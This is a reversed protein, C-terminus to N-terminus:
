GRWEEPEIYVNIDDKSYTGGVAPEMPKQVTNAAAKGWAQETSSVLKELEEIIEPSKQVAADAIRKVIYIYVSRTKLSFEDNDTLSLMLNALIERIKECHLEIDGGGTLIENKLLAMHELIAQYQLQVLQPGTFTKIKRGLDEQYKYKM